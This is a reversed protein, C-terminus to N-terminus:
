VSLESGIELFRKRGDAHRDVSLPLKSMSDGLLESVALFSGTSATARHM